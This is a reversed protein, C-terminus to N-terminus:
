PQPRLEVFGNRWYILKCCVTLCFHQAINHSEGHSAALCTKTPQGRMRQPHLTLKRWSRVYRPVHDQSCHALHPCIYQLLHRGQAAFNM